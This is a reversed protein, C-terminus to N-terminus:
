KKEKLQKFAGKVAEVIDCLYEYAPNPKKPLCYWWEDGLLDYLLTDSAGPNSADVLPIIGWTERATDKNIDDKRRLEIVRERLLRELADQDDDAIRDEIGTKLKGVLYHKDCKLFFDMLTNNEGMHSWYNSWAEGFCTITIKGEGPGYDEVIVSIPDLTGLGERRSAETIVLKRVMSETIKM